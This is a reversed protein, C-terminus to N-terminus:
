KGYNFTFLMNNLRKEIKNSVLIDIKREIYNSFVLTIIKEFDEDSLVNSNKLKVLESSLERIESLRANGSAASYDSAADTLHSLSDSASKRLVESSTVKDLNSFKQNVINM